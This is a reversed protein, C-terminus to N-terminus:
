HICYQKDEPILHFPTGHLAWRCCKISCSPWGFAKWFLELIFSVCIGHSSVMMVCWLLVGVGWGDLGAFIM